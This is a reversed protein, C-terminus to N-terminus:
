LKLTLSQNIFEKHHYGLPDDYEIVGQLNYNPSVEDKDLNIKEIEKLSKSLLLKVDAKIPIKSLSYGELTYHQASNLGNAPDKSFNAKLLIHVDYGDESSYLLYQVDKSNEKEIKNFPMMKDHFKIVSYHQRAYDPANKQPPEKIIKQAIQIQRDIFDKSLNYGKYATYDVDYLKNFKVLTAYQKENVKNKLWAPPLNGKKNYNGPTQGYAGCCLFILLTLFLKKMIM